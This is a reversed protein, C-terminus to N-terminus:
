KPSVFGVTESPKLFIREKEEVCQEELLACCAPRSRGATAVPWPQVSHVPIKAQLRVTQWEQGTWAMGTWIM